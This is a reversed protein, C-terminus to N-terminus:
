GVRRAWTFRKKYNCGGGGRGGLFVVITKKLAQFFRNEELLFFGKYKSSFIAM